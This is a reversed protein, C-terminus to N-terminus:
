GGRAPESRGRSEAHGLSCDLLDATPTMMMRSITPVLGFDHDSAARWATAVAERVTRLMLVISTTFDDATTSPPSIVSYRISRLILKSYSPQDCPAQQSRLM